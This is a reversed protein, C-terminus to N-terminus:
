NLHSRKIGQVLSDGEHGQFDTHVQEKKIVRKKKEERKQM